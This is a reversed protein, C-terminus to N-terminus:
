EDSNNESKIVVLLLSVIVLLMMVLMVTAYTPMDDAVPDRKIYLLGLAVGVGLAFTLLHSVRLYRMVM